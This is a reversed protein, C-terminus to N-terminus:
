FDSASRSPWRETLATDSRLAGISCDNACFEGFRYDITSYYCGGVFGDNPDNINDHGTSYL